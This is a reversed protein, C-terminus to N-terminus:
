KLWHKSHGAGLRQDFYVVNMSQQSFIIPTLPKKPGVAQKKRSPDGLSWWKVMYQCIEQSGAGLALNGHLNNIQLIWTTLIWVLKRLVFSKKIPSISTSQFLKGKTAHSHNSFGDYTVFRSHLLLNFLCVLYHWSLIIILIFSLLKSFFYKWFFIKTFIFYSRLFVLM